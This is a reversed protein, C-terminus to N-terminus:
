AHGQVCYWVSIIGRVVRSRARCYRVSVLPLSTLVNIRSSCTRRVLKTWQMKARRYISCLECLIHSLATSEGPTGQSLSRQRSLDSLQVCCCCCCCCCTHHPAWCECLCACLSIQGKMIRWNLIKNRFRRLFLIGILWEQSFECGDKSHWYVPSHCLVGNSSLFRHFTRCSCVPLIGTSLFFSFCSFYVQTCDLLRMM